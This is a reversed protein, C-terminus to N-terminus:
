GLASSGDSFTVNGAYIEARRRGPGPLGGVGGAGPAMRGRRWSLGHSGAPDFDQSTVHPLAPHPAVIHGIPSRENHDSSENRDIALRPDIRDIPDAPDTSLMPDTPDARDSPLTPDVRDANETPDTRDTPEAAEAADRQDSSLLPPSRSTSARRIGEIEANTAAPAVAASV